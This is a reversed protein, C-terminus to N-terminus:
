DLHIKSKDNLRNVLIEFDDFPYKDSRLIEDNEGFLSLGIFLPTSKVAEPTFKLNICDSEEVVEGKDQM